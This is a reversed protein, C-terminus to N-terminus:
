GGEQVHKCGESVSDSAQCAFLRGASGDQLGAVPTGKGAGLAHLGLKQPCTNVAQGLHMSSASGDQLDAISLHATAALGQTPNLVAQVSNEASNDRSNDRLHLQM